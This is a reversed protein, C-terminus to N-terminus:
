PEVFEPLVDKLFMKSLHEYQADYISSVIKKQVPLRIRDNAALALNELVNRDEKDWLQQLTRIEETELGLKRGWECLEHANLNDPVHALLVARKGKAHCEMGMDVFRAPLVEKHDYAPQSPGMFVIGTKHGLLGAENNIYHQVTWMTSSFRVAQGAGEESDGAARCDTASIAYALKRAASQQYDAAVVIVQM